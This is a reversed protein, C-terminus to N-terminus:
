PERRQSSVFVPGLVVPHIMLRFEDILRHPLLSHVLVGSGMIVLNGGPRSKLRAVEAPM